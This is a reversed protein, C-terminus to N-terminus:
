VIKCSNTSATVFDVTLLKTKVEPKVNMLVEKQARLCAVGSVCKTITIM